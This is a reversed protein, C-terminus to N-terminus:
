RRGSASAAVHTAQKTQFEAADACVASEPSRSFIARSVPGTVM